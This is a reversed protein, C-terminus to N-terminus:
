SWPNLLAASRYIGVADTPIHEYTQVPGFTNLLQDIMMALGVLVAM